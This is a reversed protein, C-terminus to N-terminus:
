RCQTRARLNAACGKIVGFTDESSLYNRTATKIIGMKEASELGINELGRTVNFRFYRGEAALNKHHRHFAEDTTQCDTAIAVLSKGIQLLSDGFAKLLPMGTGISVLCQLNDELKWSGADDSDNWLDTAETWIENIPNNARTAGDTFTQGAISIPEFFGTAASTARAAQWIKVKERM